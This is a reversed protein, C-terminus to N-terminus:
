TSIARCRTSNRSSSPPCPTKRPTWWKKSCPLISRALPWPTPNAGVVKPFMVYAPANPVRIKLGKMDAPTLIPKNATVHRAGYYTLAVIPNGTAKEYGATLEKFLDSDRYAKWHAYGRMTFPYDSIAVPGYARSAFAVGTYIIDISGLSIGENIAVEKGLSSAPFVKIKYRGETAKEFEKAAMLAAENYPTKVEYVHAFRLETAAFALSAGLMIAMAAMVAVTVIAGRKFNFRM